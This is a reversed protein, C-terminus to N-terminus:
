ADIGLANALASLRMPKQFAGVVKVGSGLGIDQALALTELNVGSILIVSGQFQIHGLEAVFEIGDMDPMYIDCILFNPATDLYALAQLAERGNCALHVQCVGLQGLMDCLLQQSFVDDDIVMVRTSLLPRTTNTTTTTDM